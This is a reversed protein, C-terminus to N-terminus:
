GAPNRVYEAILASLTEMRLPKSVSATFGYAEPDSIVPDDAYGSSVFVPTTPCIRRIRRITEIGGMGGPITLDLIMGAIDTDNEIQQEVFDVTEQGDGFSMVTFGFTQLMLGLTKRIVEQDDMVIFLQGEQLSASSLSPPPSVSSPGPVTAPLLIHFTTGEKVRSTLDIVGDHRHLISYSIALGLGHGTSRTTFFPDFVKDRIDDSIGCGRDEIDIRVYNGARLNPHEGDKLQVNDARIDIRGGEPMAQIANIVLNQIVQGIQHRDIACPWLDSAMEYHCSISSGSLAFAATDRILPELVDVKRFPVGGRSFTLLQGTLARARDITGMAENLLGSIEPESSTEVALDIFGYVGGLLNNFDHAIGGALVGLSELRQTNMMLSEAKRLDSIDRGEALLLSIRGDSDSIPSLSFDVIAETPTKGQLVVEFRIFEGGACREIANQLMAVQDADTQWLGSEWASLGKVQDLELDVFRLAARNVAVVDGEVNLLAMFEFTGNFVARFRSESEQLATEARKRETIDRFFAAMRGEGTNVAHVEFAGQIRNDRYNLQETVIPEGTRAVERYTEPIPTDILPPFAEEIPLGMFGDHGVGLIQEAAANFGSFILRDTGSLEYLHAGFPANDILSRLRTESQQLAEQAQRNETVDLGLGIVRRPVGEEYQLKGICRLWRFTGDSIRIRYEMQLAENSEVTRKLIADCSVRDEPHIRQQLEEMPIPNSNELGSISCFEPSPIFRNEAIWFEWTGARGAEQAFRLREALNLLDFNRQQLETNMAMMEENSSELEEKAGELEENMSQLEENVSQIEENGAWLEQNIQDKEEVMAQLHQRTETLERQLSLLDSEMQQDPTARPRKKGPVPAPSERLTAPEEFLILYLPDRPASGPIPIVRLHVAALGTDTAFTTNQRYVPANTEAAERIAVYVSALIGEQLVRNLRHSVKGPAIRLYRNMDGIIERLQFADDVLVGPPAYQESLLRHVTDRLETGTDDKASQTPHLPPTSSQRSRQLARAPGFRYSARPLNNKRSFIRTRKDITAFHTDFHGLSESPGLVLFGDPKLSFHFAPLAIDQYFQDFYILVNRCSILDINPFPPDTTIDHGSFVCQDRLFRAIQFGDDSAEFFRSLREESVQRRIKTPYIGSRAVTINKQVIDTGFFQAYLNKRQQECYETLAIALSYVEEGTSCGPVWIRIPNRRTMRKLLEPFVQAHLREFTRPHRFFETVSLLLEDALAFVEDASSELRILYGGISEEGIRSLRRQLQRQVTSLRYHSYDIDTTKRLISLIQQLVPMTLLPAEPEADVKPNRTRPTKKPRSRSGSISSTM